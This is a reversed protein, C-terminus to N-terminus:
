PKGESTSDVPLAALRQKAVPAHRAGARALYREYAARALAPQALRELCQARQFEAEDGDSGPEGLLAVYEPLARACDDRAQSIQGRLLHLKAALPRGAPSALLDESASLAQDLKGSRELNRVRLWEVEGRLASGPFRQRHETLLALARRPDHLREGSLRAAEYLAVEAKLDAGRALVQFCAIAAELKGESSLARCTADDVSDPTARNPARSSHPVLASPPAPPIRRASPAPIVATVAVPAREAVPEASVLLPSPELAARSGLRTACVLASAMAAAALLWVTRQKRSKNARFRQWATGEALGETFAEDAQRLLLGISGAETVLRRPEPYAEGRTMARRAGM